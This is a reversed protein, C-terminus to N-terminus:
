GGKGRERMKKKKKIKRKIRFNFFSQWSAAEGLDNEREEQYREDDDDDPPIMVMSRCVLPVLHGSLARVPAGFMPSAAEGQRGERGGGERGGFLSKRKVPEGGGKSWAERAERAERAEWRDSSRSSSFVM